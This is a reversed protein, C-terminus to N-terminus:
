DLVKLSAFKAVLKKLGHRSFSVTLKADEGEGERRLVLGQGYKPHSVMAGARIAGGRKGAPKPAAASGASFSASQATLEGDTAPRNAAGAAPEARPGSATGSGPSAGPLGGEARRAPAAPRPLNTQIGREAFFQSIHDLSNYTKGTYTNRRAAERVMQQEGSLEVHYPETRRASLTEMLHAPIEKLFRSPM